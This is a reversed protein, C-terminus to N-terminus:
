QPYGRMQVQGHNHNNNNNNQQWNPRGRFPRNYGPQNLNFQPLKNPTVRDQHGMTGAPQRGKNHDQRYSNNDNQPHMRFQNQMHSNVNHGTERHQRGGYNPNSMQNPGGQYHNPQGRMNHNNPQQHRVILLEIYM